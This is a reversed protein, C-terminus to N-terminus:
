KLKKDYFDIEEATKRRRPPERFRKQPMGASSHQRADIRV